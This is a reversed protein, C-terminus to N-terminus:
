GGICAKEEASWQGGGMLCREQAMSNQTYVWFAGFLGVVVVAFILTFKNM